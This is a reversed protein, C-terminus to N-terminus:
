SIIDPAVAIATGIKKNLLIHDIQNNQNPRYSRIFGVARTALRFNEQIATTKQSWIGDIDTNFYWINGNCVGRIPYRINVINGNRIDPDDLIRDSVNPLNAKMENIPESVSVTQFLSPRENLFGSNWQQLFGGPTRPLTGGVYPDTRPSIGRARLAGDWKDTPYGTNKYRDLNSKTSREIDELARQEEPSLQSEDLQQGHLSAPMSSCLLLALGVKILRNM